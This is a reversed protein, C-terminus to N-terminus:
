HLVGVTEGETGMRGEGSAELVILMTSPETMPGRSIIIAIDSRIKM